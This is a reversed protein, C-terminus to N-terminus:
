EVLRNIYELILGIGYELNNIRENNPETLM